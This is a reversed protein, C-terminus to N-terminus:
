SQGRKAGTGAPHAARGRARMERDYLWHRTERAASSDGPLDEQVEALVAAEIHPRLVALVRAGRVDLDERAADSVADYDLGPMSAAFARGAAQPNIPQAM